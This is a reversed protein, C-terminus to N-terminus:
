EGMKLFLVYDYHGELEEPEKGDEGCCHREHESDVFIDEESGPHVGGESVAGVSMKGSPEEVPAAAPAPDDKNRVRKCPADSKEIEEHGAGM